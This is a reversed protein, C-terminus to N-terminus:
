LSLGEGQWRALTQGEKVHDLSWTWSSGFPQTGADGGPRLLRSLGLSRVSIEIRYSHHSDLLPADSLQLRAPASYFELTELNLLEFVLGEGKGLEEPAQGPIARLLTSSRGEPVVGEFLLSSDRLSPSDPAALGVLTPAEELLEASFLTALAGEFWVRRLRGGALWPLSRELDFLALDSGDARKSWVGEMRGRVALESRSRWEAIPPDLATDPMARVRLSRREFPDLDLVPSRGEGRWLRTGSDQSDGPVAETLRSSLRHVAAREREPKPPNALVTGEVVGEELLARPYVLIVGEARLQAFESTRSYLRFADFSLGRLSPPNAPRVDPDARRTLFASDLLAPLTPRVADLGGVFRQPEIVLVPLDYGHEARAEEVDMSLDRVAGAAREFPRANGQALVACGIALFIPIGMRRTGSLSTGAVALGVAMVAAGPFLARANAWDKPHVRVLAEPLVSFFLAAAFLVAVWTWLRPASRAAVLVPQLAALLLAGALLYSFLGVGHTNVPFLLVGIKEAAYALARRADGGQGLVAFSQVWDPLVAGGDALAHRVLSELTIAGTFVVLTTVATRLRTQLPRYRRASTMEAAALAPPLFMCLPSAFGCLAALLGA